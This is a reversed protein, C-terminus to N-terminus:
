TAPTTATGGAFVYEAGSSFVTTGSAIGGSSIVDSGGSDVTNVVTGGSLVDLIGGSLV